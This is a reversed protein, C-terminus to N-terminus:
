EGGDSIFGADASNIPQGANEHATAEKLLGDM